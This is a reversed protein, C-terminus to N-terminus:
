RLYHDSRSQWPALTAEGPSKARGVLWALVQRQGAPDLREPLLALSIALERDVYADPWDSPQYGLGLDVHHLEVERWRHLPMTACPWIEGNANLGHGLWAEPTMEGWVAELAAASTTVDTILEAAPRAAGAEIDAARRETGGDYQTVADGAIAARLMRTHSDANRALHTLLHGITWAPLLSPSAAQADTVSGIADILRTQSGRAGEVVVQIEGDGGVRVDDWRSRVIHCREQELALAAADHPRYGSRHWM